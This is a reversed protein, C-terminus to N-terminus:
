KKMMVSKMPHGDSTIVNYGVIQKSANVDFVHWWDGSGTTPVSYAALQGSQGYFTVRANSQDFGVEESFNQVWISFAQFVNVTITEPGNGNRDDIDLVIFPDSTGSGMNSWYIHDGNVTKLHLDIDRPTDGWELVIRFQNDALSRSLIFDLEVVEGGIEVEKQQSSFGEKEATAQYIGPAVYSFSYEGTSTSTAQYTNTGTLKVLAGDIPDGTQSDVVKGSMSGGGMDIQYLSFVDKSKAFASNEEYPFVKIFLQKNSIEEETVGWHDMAMEILAGKLTAPNESTIAREMKYAGATTAKTGGAAFSVMVSSVNAKQNTRAQILDTIEAFSKSSQNFDEVQKVSGGLYFEDVKYVNNINGFSSRSSSITAMKVEGAISIKNTSDAYSFSNFYGGLEEPTGIFLASKQKGDGDNLFILSKGANEAYTVDMGPLRKGNENTVSLAYSVDKLSGGSVMSTQIETQGLLGTRGQVAEGNYDMSKNFLQSDEIYETCSVVFLMLGILIVPISRRYFKPVMSIIKLYKVEFKNHFNRWLLM